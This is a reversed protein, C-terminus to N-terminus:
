CFYSKVKGNTNVPFFIINIYGDSFARKGCVKRTSSSIITTEKTRFKFKSTCFNSFCIERTYIVKNTSHTKIGFYSHCKNLVKILFLHFLM